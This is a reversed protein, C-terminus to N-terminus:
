SFCKLGLPALEWQQRIRCDEQQHQPFDQWLGQACPIPGDQFLSAQHANAVGAQGGVLIPANDRFM